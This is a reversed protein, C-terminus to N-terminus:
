GRSRPSSAPSAAPTTAAREYARYWELEVEYSRVKRAHSADDDARAPATVSKVVAERGDLRVRHIEGYGRWLSQIRAGRTVVAAGTADRISDLDDTM